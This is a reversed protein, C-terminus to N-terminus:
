REDAEMWHEIEAKLIPLHVTAAEWVIAEDVADYGHAIINRFGAIRQANTIRSFLSPAVIDFLTKKIELPM